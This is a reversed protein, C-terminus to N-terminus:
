QRSLAVLPSVKAARRAPGWCAILSTAALVGIAGAMVLPDLAGVGYLQSAIAGRLALAGVLGAALGVGVLVGGESLILRLIGSADSGLAMRIGIERTRQSVHYALVGYLGIAALLLAVAGFGLSLVMPARRPNLSKDIRASMTFVDTMPVDPDVEAIARTVAAQTATPDGKTRIALGIGRSSHQSMVAYFAGGRATEGGEVLGKMKVEGIVGVVNMWVVKPGPRAVDEPSDPLYIRKGVAEQKPWFKRALNEDIVVSKPADATDSATFFRGSKLRIKMAEFYGPSVYLQNPSIVSEGPKPTYGEPIVVSSSGDWSFPLYSSAGAAEVGPLSRIRTLVRDTYGRLANDDTYRTALPSLRGTLVNEATFGPDVGLLRQFSALLLGAGILLVFALAVQAVVLSRRVAKSARGATGSRGEERLVNSLNVRALQLAPGAGVVIGLLVAPALTVALVVGDLSIEHARPLDTFGIWEIASLSLFGLGIGLGAGILTLLTAETILQKAIRRGGAGIANRTALEKMRGNARVLSLNAINVAAILVVFLVGGWLMELASRVNRVLDGELSNLRTNYGASRLPEALAGAREMYRVNMADLKAQAQQISAGPALRAIMEHNQSYRRDEGLEKPVFALPTFMRVDASLFYFSDPLVGVVQYIEDNLRLTRGVAGDIGGPQRSAYAHSLVAVKHKGPTGEDESLLRGREANAGLVQFFSPTVEMSSVQEAGAGQGVRFGSWHYLAVAAFTDPMARRDIYNPVSTGAREVGAGPFGDFSSVLRSSDPYPLPRQLVSRVVAFIATNAGLCIALTLIVAAAYARDRRLVRLAYVLDQRFVDM